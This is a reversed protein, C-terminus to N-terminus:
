GRNFERYVGNEINMVGSVLVTDTRDLIDIYAILASLDAKAIEIATDADLTSFCNLASQAFFRIQKTCPVIKLM